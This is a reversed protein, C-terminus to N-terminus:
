FFFVHSPKFLYQLVFRVSARPCNLLISLSNLLCYNLNDSGLCHVKAWYGRSNCDQHGGGDPLLPFGPTEWRAKPVGMVVRSDAGQNRSGCTNRSILQGLHHPHPLGPDGFPSGEMLDAEHHASLAHLPPCAMTATLLSQWLSIGCVVSRHTPSLSGLDKTRLNQMM